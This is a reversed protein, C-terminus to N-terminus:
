EHSGVGVPRWLLSPITQWNKDLRVLKDFIFILAWNGHHKWIWTSCKLYESSSFLAYSAFDINVVDNQTSVIRFTCRKSLEPCFGLLTSIKFVAPPVFISLFRELFAHSEFKWSHPHLKAVSYSLWSMQMEDFNQEQSWFNSNQKELNKERLEWTKCLQESRLLVVKM